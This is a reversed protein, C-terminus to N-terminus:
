PTGYERHLRRDRGDHCAHHLQPERHDWTSPQGIADVNVEPVVLPSTRSWGSRAPTTSWSRCRAAAAIPAWELSVEDPVDFMAVDVGDFVEPALELV